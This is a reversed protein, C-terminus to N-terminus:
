SGDRDAVAPPQPDLGALAAAEACFHCRGAVDRPQRERHAREPDPYAIEECRSCRRLAREDVEALFDEPGSGLRALFRQAKFLRRAERERWARYASALREQEARATRDESGALDLSWIEPESLLEGAEIRGRAERLAPGEGFRGVLAEVRRLQEAGCHEALADLARREGASPEREALRPRLPDALLAGLALLARREAEELEGGRGMVIEVAQSWPEGLREVEWRGRWNHLHARLAEPNSRLREREAEERRREAQEQALAEDHPRRAERLAALLEVPEEDEGPGLLWRPEAAVPEPDRALDCACTLLESNRGSEKGMAALFSRARKETTTLFLLAPCFRHRERWANAKEYEAYGAAKQKLRRHSMSGMDLELFAHLKTGEADAVEFYADPAIAREERGPWTLFPERAAGEREFHTLEAGAPLGRVLAVYVDSLGAAHALFLPNPERREGGRPPPAGCAIAEGKRTPWLHFPASGRERYPRSRGALGHRVLRACRYRLTRESTEPNIAALQNQTLVRHRHLLSLIRLDLDSLQLTPGASGRRGAPREGSV